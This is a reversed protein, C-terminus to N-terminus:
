LTITEVMLSEVVGKFADGRPLGRRLLGQNLARQRDASTGHALINHVHDVEAKSALYEADDRILTLLEDILHRTSRIKGRSPDIFGHKLGYRQARWRNENLLLLPVNTLPRGSGIRDHLCRCLCRFLAAICLADDILPCADTIRLELTPFRASPRLDWWIKTADEVVGARVLVDITQQYRSWSAFVEPMGSRPTADNIATRYSNLGTDQGQWFPSSTSLALLLPLFARVENMVAIRLDNDDIGVHVHMGVAVMRRGLVQLDDAISNYREKNTHRQGGWLALPHTSAAIPALGYPQALGAIARRLRTLEARAEAASVCVKTAVEVQSRQFEASFQEGLTAKCEALLEEPPERVLEGTRVGVLFYEEEIGFTYAARQCITM